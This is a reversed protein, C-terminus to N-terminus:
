STNRKRLCLFTESKNMLSLYLNTNRTSTRTLLLDFDNKGILSNADMELISLIKLEAGIFEEDENSAPVDFILLHNDKFDKYKNEYEM